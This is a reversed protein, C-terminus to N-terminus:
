ETEGKLGVNRDEEPKGSALAPDYVCIDVKEPYLVFPERVIWPNYSKAVTEHREKERVSVKNKLKSYRPNRKTGNESTGFECGNEELIDKLIDFIGEVKRKAVGEEMDDLVDRGEIYLEAIEKLLPIFVDGSLKKKAEELEKQMNQRVQIQFNANERLTQVTKAELDRQAETCKKLEDSMAQLKDALESIEGESKKEGSENPLDVADQVPDTESEPTDEICETVESDPANTEEEGSSDSGVIETESEQGGSDAESQGLVKREESGLPM